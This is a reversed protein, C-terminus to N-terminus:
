LFMLTQGPNLINLGLVKGIVGAIIWAAVVIILGIIAHLIRNRATEMAGKDGGAGIWNLGGILFQILFWIAACITIVGIVTSIISNLRTGAAVAAENKDSAECFVAAIPGFGMGCGIGTNGQAHVPSAFPSLVLFFLFSLLRSFYKM